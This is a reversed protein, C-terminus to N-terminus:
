YSFIEIPIIAFAQDGLVGEDTEIAGSIRAYHVLGGLTQKNAGPLGTTGFLGDIADLVPNLLSSVVTDDYNTSNVYIVLDVELKWGAPVQTIQAPQERRQVQFIAPQEMAPVESFSKYRRSATKFM